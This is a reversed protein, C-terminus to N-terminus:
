RHLAAALEDVTTVPRDCVYGRCVYAAPSGDVLPRDALLPASGPEGAVVVGGGHVGRWAASVLDPAAGVVAVQVPGLALAEAVSLWHGAFRPERAALLGARTVAAEAASRYEAQRPAGLVSATVLASALASSGSPSANDAPDSPRQVLAEADDATDYYVGPESGAFRALATDLLGCAATLWREEGTAQHLALLGDALCGYDELVGAATGAVGNRSTRLLRGDVLHVSLLLEAARVAAAVWRPEGFASGAEALATIALGNWATVVKDDRGPQPRRDRAALLAAALEPDPEGLMRLTSAGHEFTGEPTVGYLVAARAGEEVGLVDVLQAPTWVYTLGEVGDTDADLSAAFGGEATGLTRLLFEATERVVRRYREAPDLRSLHAYVRLLLANDYLMKEFHPVVWEADVSYRAFGGGLQDYLGGSAMADCTARAMSLAEVSGTREHDRLLFELVMSPPFKPAGGFGGNARDFHGLLSVVAGDLVDGDVTSQPLPQYALQSVISAASERVQDGQERWAHTIAELVQRFSPMGQRPEPPYYTGAYFPEGDPTLFCTMPWGGHGSLAQTVAMYVADVDPREERDVKVNVFHENMYAATTPEEFSEHAMVHCWHCAAYGVSLLVPVGRERAEAFAEPSWPHWDVPNDAHQLLYPSTSSALRNTM